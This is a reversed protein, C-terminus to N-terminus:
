GLGSIDREMPHIHKILKCRLIWKRMGTMAPPNPIDYQVLDGFCGSSDGCKSAIAMSDLHPRGPPALLLNWIINYKSSTLLYAESNTARRVQPPWQTGM